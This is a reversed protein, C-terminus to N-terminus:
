EHQLQHNVNIAEHKFQTLDIIHTQVVQVKKQLKKIEADKQQIKAELRSQVQTIKTQMKEKIQSSEQELQNIREM